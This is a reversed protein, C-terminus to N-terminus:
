RRTEFRIWAIAAVLRPEVVGEGVVIETPRTLSLAEAATGPAAGKVGIIAHSWCFRGQLDGQAGIAHLAAIAEATLHMSAEDRVVVAVLHGPPIAAVLNALRQSEIEAAFTDFHATFEVVGTTPDIVALNYGRENPSVDRGEVFIHGFDGVEM